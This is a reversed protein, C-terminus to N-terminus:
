PAHTGPGRPRDGGEPKRPLSATAGALCGTVAGTIAGPWGGGILGRIAGVFGWQVCSVVVRTVLAVVHQVVFRVVKKVFAKLKKFFHDAVIPFATSADFDIHQTVTGGDITFYTPLRNGNADLALPPALESFVQGNADAFALAGDALLLAQSGIPVNVPVAYDHPAAPGPITILLRADGNSLAQAATSTGSTPYVVSGSGTRVGESAGIQPLGFGIRYGDDTTVNVPDSPRRPVDVTTGGATTISASDGDSAGGAVVGNLGGVRDIADVTAGPSLAMAGSPLALMAGFALALVASRLGFRTSAVRRDVSPYGLLQKSRMPKV